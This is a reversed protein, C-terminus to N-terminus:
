RWHYGLSVGFTRPTNPLTAIIGVSSSPFAELVVKKDTLNNVWFTLNWREEQQQLMVRGNILAFSEQFVDKQNPDATYFVDDQWSFDREGREGVATWVTQM